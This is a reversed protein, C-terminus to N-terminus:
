SPSSWRLPSAHTTHAIHATYTTYATYPIHRTYIHATYTTYATYPIHRTYIHATNFLFAIFYCCYFPPISPITLSRPITSPPFSDQSSGRCPQHVQHVQRNHGRLPVYWLGQETGTTPPLVQVQYKTFKPPPPQNNMLMLALILMRVRVYEAHLDTVYTLRYDRCSFWGCVM